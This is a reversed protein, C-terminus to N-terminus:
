IVNCLCMGSDDCVGELVGNLDCYCPQCDPPSHFGAHCPSSELQSCTPGRYGHRCECRRPNGPICIGENQCPNPDCPDVCVGEETAVFGDECVCTHARWGNKCVSHAPCINAADSCESGAHCGSVTHLSETSFNQISTDDVAAALDIRQRNLSFDALCGDFHDLSNTDSIGLTVSTVQSVDMAVHTSSSVVGSDISLQKLFVLFTAHVCTRVYAHSSHM